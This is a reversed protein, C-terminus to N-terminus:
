NRARSLMMDYPRNEVDKNVFEDTWHSYGSDWRVVSLKENPMARLSVIPSKRGNHHLYITIDNKSTEMRELTLEIIRTEEEADVGKIVFKTKM